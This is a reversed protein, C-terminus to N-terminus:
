DYSQQVKSIRHIKIFSPLDNNQMSTLKIFNKIKSYLGKAEVIDRRIGTVFNFHLNLQTFVKECHLRRQGHQPEITLVFIPLTKKTAM